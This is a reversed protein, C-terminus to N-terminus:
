YTKTGMNQMQAVKRLAMLLSLCIAAHVTHKWGKCTDQLCKSAKCKWEWKDPPESNPQNERWLGLFNLKLDPQGRGQGSPIIDYKCHVM